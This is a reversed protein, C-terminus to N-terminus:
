TLKRDSLDKWQNVMLSDKSLDIPRPVTVNYCNFNGNSFELGIYWQVMFTSAVDGVTSCIVTTVTDCDSYIHNLKRILSNYM